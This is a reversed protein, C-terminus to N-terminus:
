PTCDTTWVIENIFLEVMDLTGDSDDDTAQFDYPLFGNVIVQGSNTALIAGLATDADFCALQESTASDLASIVDGDDGVDHSYTAIPDPLTEVLSWLTSGSSPSLPLPTGMSTDVSVGLATSVASSSELDYWSFLVSGGNSIQTSIRSIVEAPLPKGPADILIIDFSADDYVFGFAPGATTVPPAAGLAIAAANMPEDTALDYSDQYVLVSLDACRICTSPDLTGDCDTDVGDCVDTAGPHTAAERDDCDTGDSVFSSPQDCATTTTASDGYGDGDGDAYWTTQGTADADDAAGSCDEDTDAEDCIETAGPHIDANADDCDDGNDVTGTPAECAQVAGNADGYADGDTDAYFTEGSNLDLNPDDEDVKADCNNDVGDCVEAADPNVAADDDDCDEDANFGDGDADTAEVATDAGDSDGEEKDGCAALLCLLCTTYLSPSLQM